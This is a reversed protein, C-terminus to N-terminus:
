GAARTSDRRTAYPGNVWDTLAELAERKTHFKDNARDGEQYWVWGTCEADDGSTDVIRYVVGHVTCTYIGPAVKTSKLTEM